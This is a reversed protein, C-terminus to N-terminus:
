LGKLQRKLVEIGAYMKNIKGLVNQMRKHASRDFRILLKIYDSLKYYQSAIRKGDDNPRPMASSEYYFAKMIHIDGTDEDWMFKTDKTAGMQSLLRFVSEAGRRDFKMNDITTHYKLNIHTIEM